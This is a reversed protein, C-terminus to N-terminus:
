LDSNPNIQIHTTLLLRLIPTTWAGSTSYCNHISGRTRTWPLPEKGGLNSIIEVNKDCNALIHQLQAHL